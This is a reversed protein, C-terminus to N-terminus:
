QLLIVQSKSIEWLNPKHYCKSRPEGQWARPGEIKLKLGIKNSFFLVTLKLRFKVLGNMNKNVEPFRKKRNTVLRIM